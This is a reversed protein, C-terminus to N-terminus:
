SGKKTMKDRIFDGFLNFSIVTIAIAIGPFTSIWWGDILADRGDNIISGWSPTPPPVGLGLFSLAAEVLIIHGIRLTSDVIILASTNPLLHKWIIKSSNQGMANAATVFDTEKLSLVQSRVLRSVGMWGTAGLVLVTLMLSPKFLAVILLILFLRPFSLIIDVARMLISDVAKGFFGSVAGILSGITAAILVALIGVALSVRSGYIIRSLIDRGFKDTGLFFIESALWETKEEGLLLIKDISEWRDGRRYLVRERESKIENAYIISGDAKLILSATSLPPLYRLALTDPQDNPDKPSIIPALLACSFLVFLIIMSVITLKNKRIVEYFSDSLFRNRQGKRRNIIKKMFIFLLPSILVVFLYLSAIFGEFSQLRWGTLFAKWRLVIISASISFLVLVVTITIRSRHNKVDNKTGQLFPDPKTKMNM